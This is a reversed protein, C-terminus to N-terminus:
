ECGRSVNGIQAKIKVDTFSADEGRARAHSCRREHQVSSVWASLLLNEVKSFWFALYIFRFGEAMINCMSSWKIKLKVM